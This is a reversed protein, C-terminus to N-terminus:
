YLEGSLIRDAISKAEIINHGKKGHKSNKHWRQLRLKIDFVKEKEYRFKKGNISTETWYNLFDILMERPYIEKFPIMSNAFKSKRMRMSENKELINYKSEFFSIIEDESLDTKCKEIIEWWIERSM